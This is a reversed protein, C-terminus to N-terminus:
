HIVVEFLLLEDISGPLELLMVQRQRNEEIQDPQDVPEGVRGSTGALVKRLRLTYGLREAGVLDRGIQDPLIIFLDQGVDEVPHVVVPLSQTPGLYERSQECARLLTRRFPEGKGADGLPHVRLGAETQDVRIRDQM